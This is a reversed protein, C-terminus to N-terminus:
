NNKNAEAIWRAVTELVWDDPWKKKCYDFAKTIQRSDYGNLLKASKLNRLLFPVFQTKNEFKFGKETIYHGVINYTKSKSDLLKDIERKFNFEEEQSSTESVKKKTKTNTNINSNSNLNSNLHSQTHIPYLYPISLNDLKAIKDKIKLPIKSLEAEIGTKIKPNNTNQYRQFNKIFIWGDIYHIKGVFRKMMKPILEKDIGTESAIISIPLEYIGSINTKDNTLFYLFLYRDLPNLQERIFTDHWFRTDIYRQKAM